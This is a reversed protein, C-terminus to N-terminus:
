FLTTEIKTSSKVVKDRVIFLRIKYIAFVDLPRILFSGRTALITSDYKEENKFGSPYTENAGYTREYVKFGNKKLLQIAVQRDECCNKLYGDIKSSLIPNNDGAKQAQIFISLIGNKEYFIPTRM